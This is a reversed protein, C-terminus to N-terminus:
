GGESQGYAIYTGDASPWFGSLAIKGDPWLRNPDIAVKEAGGLTTRVFWVSQRELGSNRTYFWRGEFFPTTVRPYNWLDTIRRRLEERMPFSDLYKFTVANEAEIWQKVPPSNLDEMWRYPDAIKTGFYDDVVDGKPPQPYNLTLTQQVFAVVALLLAFNKV